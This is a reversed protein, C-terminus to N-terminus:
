KSLNPVFMLRGVGVNAVTATPLKTGDPSDLSIVFSAPTTFGYGAPLLVTVRYHGLALGALSYRGESDSIASQPSLQIANVQAEPTATVEVDAIGAESADMTGSGNLDLFVLGQITGGGFNVEAIGSIGATQATVTAVGTTTVSTLLAQAVGNPDTLSSPTITGLTTTFTVQQNSLPNGFADKVTAAIASTSSGNAPLLTTGAVVTMSAPAGAAITISKEATSQGANNAVTLSIVKTGPTTWVFSKSDSAGNSQESPPYDTAQWTYTLPLTAAPAIGSFAQTVITTTATFSYSEGAVGSSAGAIVVAEPSADVPTVTISVTATSDGSVGNDATYTFSDVGQYDADPTYTVTTGNNTAVGHSPQTISTITLPNNDSDTDNALVPITVATDEPTSVTDDNAVPPPPPLTMPTRSGETDSGTNWVLYANNIVLQVSTLKVDDVYWGPHNNDSADRRFWFYFSIDQGAYQTLEMSAEHWEGISNSLQLVTRDVVNGGVTNALVARADASTLDQTKEWSWFTLYNLTDPPLAVPTVLELNGESDASTGYNCTTADGFYWSTTPSHSKSCSGSGNEMHWQGDASWKSGGSEMDDFFLVQFSETEKVKVRFTRVAVAKSAMTGLNWSVIGDTESGGESASGEIYTTNTPVVDTIIIGSLPSETNNTVTLTYTLIKNSYATPSSVSEALDLLCSDPLDFAETGDNISLSSGQDASAGLGRKAFAAWILCANAGGTDVQDAALIADRGDVFGPECPQLKLGDIVLQLALNNGGSGTYLDPDFGYKDVLSWYMEWLMGAWVEGVRHSNATFLDLDISNYTQPNVSMDTSYPYTRIGPSTSPNGLVYNGMARADTSVDGAKATLAMALFDSWGEGMQETYFLGFQDMAPLCNSNSPGGTLRISLGHGYEHIIIGNELDGDRGPTTLDWTYMQMRPATGDPPAAFNANDTGSGDLADAQVADAGLGGEGYNNIQFNGSAEDFGYHYLIDHIINNQYFLNVIAAQQNTGGTPALAPDFAYDFDLAGSHVETARAGGANNADADEQAFVNNGRTDSFEAGAAGNTDHWGFPSATSDAPNAVLSHSNPLGGGEEPNELPLPFVRYSANAVWDNQSLIKGTVADIRLNPWSDRDKLEMSVNWALRIGNHKEIVLGVPIRRLSVGGGSFETAESPGQPTAMVVFDSAPTLGLQQTANELAVLPPIQPQLTNVSEALHPVFGNHYNLISGDAAINVNIDGNFVEIGQFRQRVYVHSVGNHQTTYYDKVVIDAIDEETLGWEARHDRIFDLAITLRADAQPTAAQVPPALLESSGTVDPLYTHHSGEQAAIPAPPLVISTVIM